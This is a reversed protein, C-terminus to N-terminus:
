RFLMKGLPQKNPNHGLLSRSFAQIMGMISTLVDDNLISLIIFLNSIKPFYYLQCSPPKSGM